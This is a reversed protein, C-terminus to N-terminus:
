DSLWIKQLDSGEFLFMVMVNEDRFSLVPAKTVIERPTGNCEVLGKGCATEYRDPPLLELVCKTAEEQSEMLELIRYEGNKQAM